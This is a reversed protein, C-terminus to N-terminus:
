EIGNKCIERIVGEVRNQNLKDKEIVHPLMDYEYVTKMFFIHVENQRNKKPFCHLKRSRTLKKKFGILM